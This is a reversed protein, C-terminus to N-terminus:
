GSCTRFTFNANSSCLKCIASLKKVKECLPILELIQNWGKREFTSNLASIVIIKGMNSAKESFSVLDEFFQGEDIGIVDFCSWDHDSIDTLKKCAFASKLQQDHTSIADKSYRNDASYKVSLTKKGAIEFRNVRRLLETSKGAFM